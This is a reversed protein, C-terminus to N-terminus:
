NILQCLSTEKHDVVIERGQISFLLNRAIIYTLAMPFIAVCHNLLRVSNLCIYPWTQVHDLSQISYLRKHLWSEM